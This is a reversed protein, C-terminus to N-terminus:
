VHVFLPQQQGLPTRDPPLHVLLPTNRALAANQKCFAHYPPWDSFFNHPPRRGTLVFEAYFRSVIQV